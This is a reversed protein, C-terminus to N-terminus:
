SAASQVIPIIGVDDTRRRRAGSRMLASYIDGYFEARNPNEFMKKDGIARTVADKQWCFSVVNDTAAVSAGLANIANTSTAAMATDSRQFIKFGYLTGVTGSAQDYSSSFDRYTTVNMESSMQDLMNAEILAYRDTTPIKQLDMALKAKRLDALAMGHRNGTQGTTASATAAGTTPIFLGSGLGTLWKIIIDDAVTDVLQGAHDGFVSTIKDYSLEVKDADPILTPDTTYEDLTYTIDTDTRKVATAPLSSRNKVITPKAGPQPIHVIRGGVVYQDDNFANILFANDKWLRTMIYNVWIEVQIAM